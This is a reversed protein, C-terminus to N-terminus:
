RDVEITDVRLGRWWDAATMAAKGAPQVRVLTLPSDATGIVVGGAESRIVGAPLVPTTPAGLAAALVKVRVGGVSTHAGPEPTAGLIRNHVETAPKAWDLLGDAVTLKPALTVEGVQPTATATGAELSAVVETLLQAGDASLTTLLDGATADHPRPMRLQAFVDGDDLGPGLQFVGAGVEPDGAIISRQVPAAGRWRPLLSFHLNIWGRPLGTLLPERVLAGYAVIVGLEADTQLIQATAAADLRDTRLVPLADAEAARAVPSPTLVRKRGVPADTRTVVLAVDHGAALLAELSPVAAEPTGAFVIRM